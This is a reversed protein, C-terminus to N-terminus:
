LRYYIGVLKRDATQMSGGTRPKENYYDSVVGGKGADDTKIEIHGADQDWYCRKNKDCIRVIRDAPNPAYVLIAGKPALYPSSILENMTHSKLRTRSMQVPDLLNVFGQKELEAGAQKAYRGQLRPKTIGATELAEKTYRYCWGTSKAAKKKFANRIASELQKKVRQDEVTNLSSFLSNVKSAKTQFSLDQALNKLDFKKNAQCTKCYKSVTAETKPDKISEESNPNWNQEGDFDSDITIPLGEQQVVEFKDLDDVSVNVILDKKKRLEKDMTDVIKVKQKDSKKQGQNDNASEGKASEISEFYKLIQFQQVMDNLFLDDQSQNKTVSYQDLMQLFSTSAEVTTNEPIQINSGNSDQAMLSSRAKLRIIFEDSSMHGTLPQSHSQMPFQDSAFLAPVFFTFLMLLSM